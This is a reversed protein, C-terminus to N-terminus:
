GAGDVDSGIKKLLEFLADFETAGLTNRMRAEVRLKAAESDTKAAMGKKTLRVIRGRRDEPDAVREIVDMKELEVLLQQVAQKTLGMKEVIASQRAGGKPIYAMVASPAGTFWDHGACQVEFEFANKWVAAADWLRWGIHDLLKEDVKKVM